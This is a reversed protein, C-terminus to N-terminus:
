NAPGPKKAVPAPRTPQSTEPPHGTDLILTAAYAAVTPSRSNSLECLRDIMWKEGEGAEIRQRLSNVEAVGELAAKSLRPMPRDTLARIASELDPPYEAPGPYSAMALPIEIEDMESFPKTPRGAREETARHEERERYAALEAGFEPMVETAFRTLKPRLRLTEAVAELRERARRRRDIEFDDLPKPTSM